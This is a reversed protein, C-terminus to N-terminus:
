GWHQRILQAAGQRIADGHGFTAVEFELAALARQTARGLELDEFLIPDHLGQTNGMADAAFLVGGHKPWWLAVQGASHGPAAVVTLGGAFPLTEGPTLHEDVQATHPFSQPAAVVREFIAELGPAATMPRERWRGEQVLVADLPHMYVRAGTVVKLAALSGSHDPHFHTVIIHHVDTPTHGLTRVANLIVDESGAVGTDILVLSSDHELLFVNVIGLSLQHLGPVLRLLANM